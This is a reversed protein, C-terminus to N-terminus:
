PTDQGAGADRAGEAAAADERPFRGHFYRIIGTVLLLALLPLVAWEVRAVGPAMGSDPGRSWDAVALEYYALGVLFLWVLPIIDFAHFTPPEANPRSDEDPTPRATAPEAEQEQNNLPESM